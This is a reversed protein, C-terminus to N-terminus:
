RSVALIISTDKNIEPKIMSIIMKREDEDNAVVGPFDILTLNPNKPGSITVNIPNPIFKCHSNRFANARQIEETLEELKLNTQKVIRDKECDYYSIEASSHDTQFLKLRLPRKTVIGKGTPLFNKGVIKELVSSKGASQSGIVVIKLLISNHGKKSNFSDIKFIKGPLYGM